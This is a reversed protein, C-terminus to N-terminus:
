RKSDPADDGWFRAVAERGIAEAEKAIEKPDHKGPRACLGAIAAAM